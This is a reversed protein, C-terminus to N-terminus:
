RLQRTGRHAPPPGPGPVPARRHLSAHRRRGVARRHPWAPVVLGGRGCVACRAGAGPALAGDSRATDAVGTPAAARLAATLGGQASRRRWISGTSEDLAPEDEPDRDTPDDNDHKRGLVEGGDMPPTLGEPLCVTVLRALKESGQDMVSVTAVARKRLRLDRNRDRHDERGLPSQQHRARAEKKQAARAPKRCDGSCYTQGRYCPRCIPFVGVCFGCRELVLVEDDM